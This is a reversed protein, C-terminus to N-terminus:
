VSKIIKSIAHKFSPINTFKSTNTFNINKPSQSEEFIVVPRNIFSDYIVLGTITILISFTVSLIIINRVKM